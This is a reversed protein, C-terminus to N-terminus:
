IKTGIDIKFEDEWYKIEELLTEDISYKPQWGTQKVFKTSDCVLLQVDSPRLRSSDEVVEFNKVQPYRSQGIAILKNLIEEVSYATGSGINYTEGPEGSEVALRYARVMDRVDTIDRRALLNGHQIANKMGNGVQVVQKAFSSTMYQEGRGYGEHNFARTRIIRIGYSKFYQYGLFDMAVKSVAYTSMPRLPNDENIPCEEEKVLGYEESSGAIQVVPNLGTSRIAEFLNLSGITNVEIVLKPDTWSTPVFAIGALHFIYDPRIRRLIAHVSEYDLLNMQERDMPVVEYGNDKLEKILHGGVFGSSGTILARKM